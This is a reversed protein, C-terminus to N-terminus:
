LLETVTYFHQALMHSECKWRSSSPSHPIASADALVAFSLYVFNFRRRGVAVDARTSRPPDRHCRRWQSRTEGPFVARIHSLATWYTICVFNGVPRAISLSRRLQHPAAAECDGDTESPVNDPRIPVKRDNGTRSLQARYLSPPLDCYQLM